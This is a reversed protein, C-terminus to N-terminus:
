LYPHCKGYVGLGTDWKGNCTIRNTYSILMHEVTRVSIRERRNSLFLPEAPGNQAREALYEELRNSVEATTPVNREKNGKGRNVYVMGGRKLEVDKVNLAVLEGVRMACFLLMMVDKQLQSATKHMYLM